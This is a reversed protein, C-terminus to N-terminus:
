VSEDWYFVDHICVFTKLATHFAWIGFLLETAPTTGRGNLYRVLGYLATPFLFVLEICLFLPVWSAGSEPTWQLIPDNYTEIYTSRM